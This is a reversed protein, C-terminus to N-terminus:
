KRMALFIVNEQVDKIQLQHCVAALDRVDCLNFSGRMGVPMEGNIIKIITGTTEGIAYDQAGINRNSTGCM